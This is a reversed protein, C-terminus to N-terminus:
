TRTFDGLSVRSQSVANNSIIHDINMLENEWGTLNFSSLSKTGRVKLSLVNSYEPLSYHGVENSRVSAVVQAIGRELTWAPEFGLRAQIKRFSVRYNRKEPCNADSVIKAEPVQSRILEAVDGLTHNQDNGGVNFTENAVLGVLAQLTMVIARAVDEVHVFPRWQDEGFVTIVGDRVAKACLLNVVLDFRTRGSVGYITAFRLCTVAFEPDNLSSLVAESAVKTRAYLSQPNFRSKEDVIEDCAGYVSCSSAFIFRRVGRAKAIEGILKTGTVNIDITLDPDTACAPDGVLGGLHIVSGVGNMTRTIVEIHRFDERIVNLAPHGALRSLAKEGFHM